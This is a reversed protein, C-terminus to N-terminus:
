FHITKETTFRYVRNGGIKGVDLFRDEKEDHQNTSM